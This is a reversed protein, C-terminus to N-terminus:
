ASPLLPFLAPEHLVALHGRYPCLAEFVLSSHGLIPIVVKITFDLFQGVLEDLLDIVVDGGLLSIDHSNLATEKAIEPSRSRM